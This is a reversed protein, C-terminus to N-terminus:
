EQEEEIKASALHRVIEEMTQEPNYLRQSHAGVVQRTEETLDILASRVEFDAPFSPASSASATPVPKAGVESWSEDDDDDRISSGKSTKQGGRSEPKKVAKGAKDPTLGLM